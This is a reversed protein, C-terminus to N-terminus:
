RASPRPFRAYLTQIRYVDVPLQRYFIEELEAMLEHAQKDRELLSQFRHYKNQIAAHPKFLHLTWYSFLTKIM